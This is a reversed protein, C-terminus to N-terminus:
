RSRNSATSPAPVLVASRGNTCDHPPILTPSSMGGNFAIRADQPSPWQGVDADVYLPLEFLSGFPPIAGEQM